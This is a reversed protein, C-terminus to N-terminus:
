QLVDGEYEVLTLHTRAEVDIVVYVPVLTAHLDSSQRLCGHGAEDSLGRKPKYFLEYQSLDTFQRQGPAHDMLSTLRVHPDNEFGAFHEM